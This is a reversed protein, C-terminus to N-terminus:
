SGVGPRRRRQYGWHGNIGVTLVDRDIGYTRDAVISTLVDSGSIIWPTLLETLGALIRTQCSSDVAGSPSNQDETFGSLFKRGQHKGLATYLFGVASVGAPLPHATEAPNITGGWTGFGVNQTVVWEGGIFEVVDTKLDRPVITLEIDVDFNGFLSDLGLDVAGHVLGDAVPATFDCRFWWVNVLDQDHFGEWRASARLISGDAVTAM